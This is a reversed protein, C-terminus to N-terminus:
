DSGLHVLKELTALAVSEAGYVIRIGTGARHWRASYRAGGMSNFVGEATAFESDVIQYIATM